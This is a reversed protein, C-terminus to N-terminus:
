LYGMDAQPVEHAIAIGVTKLAHTAEHHTRRFNTKIEGSKAIHVGSKAWAGVNGINM